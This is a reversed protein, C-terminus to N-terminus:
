VPKHLFALKYWLKRLSLLPYIFREPIIGILDRHLNLAICIKGKVTLPIYFRPILFQEFGNRRKFDILPGKRKNGYNYKGYILYSIGKKACVDVAKVILANTPRKDYHSSKSIFELISAVKGSYVIRLLGILEGEYYAGIFESRDLFSSYDKKVAEFEKGYHTFRRGQKILSENNIDVIGSILDDTLETLRVAVGRKAARRVNKRTVQPLKNTWWDESSDLHIAAVNDWEMSYPYLPNTDPLRQAFTFIDARLNKLKQEKLRTVCLEPNELETELWDEDHISAMKIWKGTVILNKEGINLAPVRIWKGQVSIEINNSAMLDVMVV